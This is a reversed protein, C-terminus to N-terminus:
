YSAVPSSFFVSMTAASSSTFPCAVSSVVLAASASECCVFPYSPYSTSILTPASAPTPAGAIVVCVCTDDYDYYYYYVPAAAEVAM